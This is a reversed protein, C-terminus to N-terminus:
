RDHLPSFMDSFARGSEMSGGVRGSAVDDWYAFEQSPCLVSQLGSHANRTSSLAEKLGSLAQKLQNDVQRSQDQLLMPAYVDHIASFLADLPSQKMVTVGIQRSIIDPTLGGLGQNKTLVVSSRTGEPFDMSTTLQVSEDPLIRCQLSACSGDDLFSTVANADRTLAANFSHDDTGLPTVILGRLADLRPDM